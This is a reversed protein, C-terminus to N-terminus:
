KLMAMHCQDFWTTQNTGTNTSECLWSAENRSIHKGTRHACADYEYKWQTTIEDVHQSIQLKAFSKKIYKILMTKNISSVALRKYAKHM